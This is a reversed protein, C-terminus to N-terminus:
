YDDDAGQNEFGSLDQGETGSTDEAEYGDEEGFGSLDQQFNGSVLELIQVVVPQLSVGKKGSYEWEYVEVKPKYITGGGIYIGGEVPKMKADIILPKRDWIEGNKKQKNKVSIKFKVNGTQEGTDQDVEYSWLPNDAKPYARGIHAKVIKQLQEMYPLAKEETLVLNSSYQGLPDFKTDPETLKPYSATGPCFTISKTEAM